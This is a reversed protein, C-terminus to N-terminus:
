SASATAVIRQINEPAYFETLSVTGVFAGLFQDTDIQNERLAGLLQKIADSPEDMRALDCTYEYMAKASENRSREYNAMAENLPRRGSFGTDIADALGEADRFTDTIGQGTYADRHYGADGVLAWGDGYPKRFYNPPELLGVYRERRRASAVRDRLDPVTELAKMYNGEVDARVREFQDAPWGVVLVIMGDHTPGHFFGLRDRTSLGLYNIDAIEWYNLYYCTRTPYIDYQPPKTVRAVISQAGDAGIVIKTREEVLSGGETQGRIGTVRGDQVTLERVTFRERMACGSEVAAEVLLKDLVTRRPCYSEDVEDLPPPTGTLVFPGPDFRVRRVPPCGTARLRDLLGWRKMRAVGPLHIIHSSIADSPFAARDVLLVRYGKRALLLGVPSGACRAGIVIADYV